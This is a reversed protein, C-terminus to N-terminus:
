ESPPCSPSLEKLLSTNGLSYSSCSSSWGSRRQERGVVVFHFGKTKASLSLSLSLERDVNWPNLPNSRMDRPNSTCERPIQLACSTM